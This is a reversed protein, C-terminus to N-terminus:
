KYKTRGYLKMRTIKGKLDVCIGQWRYPISLQLFWYRNHFNSRRLRGLLLSGLWIGSFKIWLLVFFILYGILGAGSLLIGAVALKRKESKLGITGFIIGLISFVWAYYYALGEIKTIFLFLFSSIINPYVFPLNIIVVLSLGFFGFFISLKSFTNKDM